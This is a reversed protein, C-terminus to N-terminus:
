AGPVPGSLLIDRSAPAGDAHATSGPRGAKPLDGPGGGVKGPGFM